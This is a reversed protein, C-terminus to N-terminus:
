VRMKKVKDRPLNDVLFQVANEQSITHTEDGGVTTVEWPGTMKGRLLKSHRCISAFFLLVCRSTTLKSDEYIDEALCVIDGQDVVVAVRSALNTARFTRGLHQSRWRRCRLRHGHRGPNAPDRM